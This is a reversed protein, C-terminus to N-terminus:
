RVQGSVEPLRRGGQDGGQRGRLRGRRRLHHRSARHQLDQGVARHVHDRGDPEGPSPEDLLHFGRHAPVPAPVPAAVDLLQTQAHRVRRGEGAHARPRRRAAPASRQDQVRQRRNRARSTVRRTTSPRKRSGTTKSSTSSSATASRPRTTGTSRQLAPALQRHRRPSGCPGARGDEAWPPAIPRGTPASAPPHPLCVTLPAM